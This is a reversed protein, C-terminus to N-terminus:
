VFRHISSLSLEFVEDSQATKRPVILDVGFELELEHLLNAGTGVVLGHYKKPITMVLRSFPKEMRPTKPARAPTSARSSASSSKRSNPQSAAEEKGSPSLNEKKEELLQDRIAKMQKYCERVCQKPGQIRVANSGEEPEIICQGPQTRQLVESLIVDPVPLLEEFQEFDASAEDGGTALADQIQPFYKPM